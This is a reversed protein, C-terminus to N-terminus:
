PVHLFRGEKLALSFPLYASLLDWEAEPGGSVRLGPKEKRSWCSLHYKRVTLTVKWSLQHVSVSDPKMLLPAHTVHM